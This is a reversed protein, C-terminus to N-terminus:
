WLDVEAELVLPVRGAKTALNLSFLGRLNLLISIGRWERVLWLGWDWSWWIGLRRQDM